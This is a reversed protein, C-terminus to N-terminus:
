SIPFNLGDNLNALESYGHRILDIFLPHLPLEVPISHKLCFGILNGISFFVKEYTEVDQISNMPAPFLDGMMFQPKSSFLVEDTLHCGELQLISQTSMQFPWSGNETSRKLPEVKFSIVKGNIWDWKM